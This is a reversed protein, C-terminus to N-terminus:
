KVPKGLCGNTCINVPVGHPCHMDQNHGNKPREDTEQTEINVGKIKGHQYKVFGM